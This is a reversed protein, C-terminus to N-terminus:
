ICICLIIFVKLLDLYVLRKRADDSAYQRACYAEAQETDGLRHAYIALAAEHDGAKSAILM